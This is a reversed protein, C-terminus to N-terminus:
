VSFVKTATYTSPLGLLMNNHHLHEKIYTNKAKIPRYEGELVYYNFIFLYQVCKTFM